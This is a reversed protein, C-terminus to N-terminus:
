CLANHDCNEQAFDIWVIAMLVNELDEAEKGGETCLFGGEGIGNPALTSFISFDSHILNSNRMLGPLGAEFGQDMDNQMMIQVSQQRMEFKSVTDLPFYKEIKGEQWGGISV